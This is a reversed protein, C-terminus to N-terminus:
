KARTLRDRAFALFQQVRGREPGAVAEYWGGGPPAVAEPLNRDDGSSRIRDALSVAVVGALLAVAALLLARQALAPSM